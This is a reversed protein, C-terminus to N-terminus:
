KKARFTVLEYRFILIDTLKNTSKREEMWILLAGGQSLDFCARYHSSIIGMWEGTVKGQLLTFQKM